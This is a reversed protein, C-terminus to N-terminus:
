YHDKADLNGALYRGGFGSLAKQWGTKLLWPRLQSLEVNATAVEKDGDFYM